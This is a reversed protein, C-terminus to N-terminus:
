KHVYGGGGTQLLDLGCLSDGPAIVIVIPQKIQIDGPSVQAPSSGQLISQVPVVAVAGEGIYSVLRPEAGCSIMPSSNPAIVIVVPEEIQKDCTGARACQSYSIGIKKVVVIAVPCKGVDCGRFTQFQVIAANRQVSGRSPGIVVVVSKSFEYEFISNARFTIGSGARTSQMPEESILPVGVM